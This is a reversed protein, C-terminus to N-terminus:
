GRTLGLYEALTGINREFTSMELAGKTIWRGKADQAALVERVRTEMAAALKAREEPSPLTPAHDLKYQAIGMQVIEAYRRAEGRPFYAGKFSYHTPTDSGDYTLKYDRTMYIPRNTGVEYFRAWKGKDAGTLETRKYWELAPGIPKLYKDDGTDLAIEILTRIAGASEGATAAPPEFKRAWAPKGDPGYQQAWVPQPEPLQAAIIYDGAKVISDRYRQDGYTRHAIMMVNVCDAIVNDNFTPFTWYGLRSGLPFRQPWGGAPFQARLIFDLAYLAAAHIAADQQKLAVDVAMLLRTAHQTTNDDFVGFNAGQKLKPDDSDQNRRYFWRKAGAPSHDVIYDWGGCELQGSALSRAVEVAADLYQQEGTAEWARLFAFGVSPCGPPQIWNQDRTAKGEGIWEVIQEGAADLKYTGLYGGGVAVETRLFSVARALAASADDRLPAASGLCATVLLSAILTARLM